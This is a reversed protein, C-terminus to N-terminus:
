EIKMLSRTVSVDNTTVRLMYVGPKLESSVPWSYHYNGAAELRKPMEGVVRGTVDTLVIRVDAKKLLQYEFTLSSGFPNPYVKFSGNFPDPEALGATVNITSDKQSQCSNADTVRLIVKYSGYANYSHIVKPKTDTKGDGFDWAYATKTTDDAAFSYTGGKLQVTTWKASPLANVTVVHSVTDICGGANKTQLIVKYVGAKAYTYGPSNTTSTGGDGFNWLYSAAGTSSNVFITKSGECVTNATFSAKPSPSATVALIFTDSCGLDTSMTLSVSGTASTWHVLISDPDSFSTMTGGIVDWSFFSTNISPSKYVYDRGQCVATPGTVTISPKPNVTIVVSDKKQCSTLTIKETLYYKTTVKPTVTPNSKTSSFGAPTSTWNYTNGSVATAGLVVSEGECITQPSGVNANPAPKVTLIVSDTKSCGAPTTETLIYTTTVTPSVIPKDLTSTFGAPLSRWSYTNGATGASGITTQTGACVTRDTGARTLPLDNIHVVVTDEDYCGTADVTERVIYTVNTVGNVITPVLKISPTTENFGPPGSWFYSNGAKPTVSLTIQKGNCAQVTDAGINTVPVPNVTITVSNSKKCGTSNTETVTYTTTVTPSVTPNPDTSTFGSPNSTWSYTSGLVAAAGISVGKGQCIGQSKGADATPLQVVNITLLLTDDYVFGDTSGNPVSTWSKLVANKSFAFSGLSVSTSSDTALKGTWSVATQVTGDISWNITAKRLTDTGYNKIKVAVSSTGVCITGASSLASIGANNKPLDFEDAGIDPPTGRTNGDIDTSIGSIATGKGNIGPTINHLETNSAYFVKTALSNADKSSASKLSSLTSYTNGNWVALNAGSAVDYNNYDSTNVINSYAFYLAPGGGANSYINDKFNNNASGSTNSGLGAGSTNTGYVHFTNFYFDLYAITDLRLAFPSSYTGTAQMSIMNNAITGRASSTGQCNLYVAGPGGSTMNITNNTVQIAGNCASLYLTYFGGATGSNTIKNKNIVIGNNNQIIVGYGYSQDITNGEIVWGNEKSTSLSNLDISRYGYRITNNKIWNGTDKDSASIIVDASSTATSSSVQTGVLVNDLIRNNHAGGKIEIVQALANTGTRKITLYRFTVYDAGNLQVVATNNGTATTSALELSAKAPDNDESIFTVTNSASTGPIPNLTLQEPYTGARIKFTTAGCVGRSYLAGVAENVSKFDPTTGGVTFSGSMGTYVNTLLTDNRTDQDSSGNPSSTWIKYVYKTNSSFTYNGLKIGSSTAGSALSGTWSYSTQTTGNVSWNITVSTLTNIGYNGFKVYVGKTGACFLYPSDLRSIGADRLPPTFEDSGIDPTSSNRAQGDIDDTVFSYPTAKGDLGAATVHLNTSSVYGPDLSISNADMGWGSKWSSLSSYTSTGSTNALKGIYSGTVYLNNYDMTTIGTNEIDVAYGGGKNIFNNNQIEQTSGTYGSYTYFAAGTSLSSTLLVSNYYVSLYYDGSIAIGTSSASGGSLVMWNNAIIGPASSSGGSTFTVIGRSVTADSLCYFKNKLIRPSTCNEMRLGYSVYHGSSSPFPNITITNGSMLFNTIYNAYVASCGSSDFLNNIIKVGSKSYSSTSFFGNYGYTFRCNQFLLASDGGSSYVCSNLGSAFGTTSNSPQYVGVFRCNLFTNDNAGNGATGNSLLVVTNNSTGTAKITIKKFTIWDASALHLVYDTSSSSSAYYLIVKSSDGSKSQFTITNTSSAGTIPTIAIQENYSGNVVNFIVAGSVGSGNATGGDSRTGSIMDSVAAAFTKYNSSSASSSADITYTGSLSALAAQPLLM